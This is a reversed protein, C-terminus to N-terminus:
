VDIGKAIEPTELRRLLSSHFTDITSIEDKGGGERTSRWESTWKRGKQSPLFRKKWMEGRQLAECRVREYTARM